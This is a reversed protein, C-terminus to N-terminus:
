LIHFPQEIISETTNQQFNEESKHASWVHSPLTTNDYFNVWIANRAVECQLKKYLVKLVHRQCFLVVSNLLEEKFIKWEAFDKDIVVVM